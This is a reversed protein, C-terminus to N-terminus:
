GPRRSSRRPDRYRFASDPVSAGYRHNRLRVTTRTNQSDLAVWSALELGGPASADEVFILTMVGFEPREPDRVNISIVNDSDTPQVTGYRTMDRNPDLLAGLPSNRIPWREVQQVDYDVLTLARGDSVVLMNVSEEYEFRIRGPNRLTLEGSVTNGARDTQTFDAQLTTIARLARTARSLDNSQSQATATAVPLALSAPLTVAMAGAMVAALPKKSLLTKANM